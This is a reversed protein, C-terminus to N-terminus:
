KMRAITWATHDMETTWTDHNEVLDLLSKVLPIEEEFEDQEELMHAYFLRLFKKDHKDLEDGLRMDDVWTFLHQIDSMDSM